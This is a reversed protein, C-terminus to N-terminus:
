ESRFLISTFRGVWLLSSQNTLCTQRLRLSTWSFHRNLSFYVWTATQSFLINLMQVKTFGEIGCFILQVIWSPFWITIFIQTGWWLCPQKRKQHSDEQDAWSGNDQCRAQHQRRAVTAGWHSACSGPCSYTHVSVHVTVYGKWSIWYIFGRLCRCNKHSVHSTKNSM